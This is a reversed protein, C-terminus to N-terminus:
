GGGVVSIKADYKGVIGLVEFPRMIQKVEIQTPLYDAASQGNIEIVGTGPFLWVKAISTKRKGTGYFSTAPVKLGTAKATRTASKVPVAAASKASKEVKAKSEKKVPAKKEKEM